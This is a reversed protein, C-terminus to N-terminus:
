GSFECLKFNIMLKLSSFSKGERQSSSDSVSHYSKDDGSVSSDRTVHVMQQIFVDLPGGHMNYNGIVDRIAPSHRWLQPNKQVTQTIKRELHSIQTSVDDLAEKTERKSILLTINPVVSFIRQPLVRRMMNM